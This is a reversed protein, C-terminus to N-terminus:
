VKSKIMMEFLKGQPTMGMITYLISRLFLLVKFIVLTIIAWKAVQYLNELIFDKIFNYTVKGIKYLKESIFKFSEWLAYQLGKLAPSIIHDATENWISRVMFELTVPMAEIYNGTFETIRKGVIAVPNIVAVAKEVAPPPEGAVPRFRPQVNRVLPSSIM